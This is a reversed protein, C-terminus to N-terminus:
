EEEEEDISNYLTGTRGITTTITPTWYPQYYPPWIPPTPYEVLRRKPIDGFSLDEKVEPQNELADAIRRLLEKSEPDLEVTIKMDNVKAM